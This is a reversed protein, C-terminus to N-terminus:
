QSFVLILIVALLNNLGHLGMSPFLSDHKVYLYGLGVGLIFRPVFGFAEFHLASFVAASLVIATWTGFYTRLSGLLIGRFLTEEIVAAAFVILLINAAINLLSPKELLRMLPENETPTLGYYYIIAAYIMHLLWILAWAKLVAILARPFNVKKWGLEAWTLHKFSKILFIVLLFLLNSAIISFYFVTKQDTIKSVIVANIFPMLFFVAMIGLAAYLLVIKDLKAIPLHTEAKENEDVSIEAEDVFTQAKNNLIKGEENSIKGEETM